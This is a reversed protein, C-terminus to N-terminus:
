YEVIFICIIQISRPPRFLACSLFADLKRLHASLEACWRFTVLLAKWAFLFSYLAPESM